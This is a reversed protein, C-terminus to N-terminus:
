LIIYPYIESVSSHDFGTYYASTKEGRNEVSNCRRGLESVVNEGINRATFNLYM